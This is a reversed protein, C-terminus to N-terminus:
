GRWYQIWIGFALVKGFIFFAPSSRSEWPPLGATGDASAPKVETNPIPVPTERGSYDGAFKKIYILSKMEINVAFALSGHLVKCTSM